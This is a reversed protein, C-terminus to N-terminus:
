NLISECEHKYVKESNDVLTDYQFLKFLGFARWLEYNSKNGFAKRTDSFDLKEQYALPYTNKEPLILPTAAVSSSPKLVVPAERRALPALKPLSSYARRWGAAMM